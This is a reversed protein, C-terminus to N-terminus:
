GAAPEDQSALRTVPERRSGNASQAAPPRAAGHRSFLEDYFRSSEYVEIRGLLRDAASLCLWRFLCLCAGYFTFNIVVALWPHNALERWGNTENFAVIAAPSVLFVFGFGTGPQPRTLIDLPMVIFVLPAVCWVVFAGLAAVIARAQSKVRLGIYLSLWAVMPLYIGVSLASCTLYLPLSFELHYSRPPAPVAIRWKMACEFFFITFFPVLLVLMLRLVARFKQRIIERGTLPTTCLVDLTQHSREGAILSASQASVMLVAVLGVPILLLTLPEASPTNAIVLVCLAAVPVELGIFVRALYRAKGLSRKATERWAVPEDGPLPATDRVFVFGRTLWNDNLRLFIRDLSKFVNLVADRPAIFARRVIFVRALVLWVASAALVLVSHMVLTWLNFGGFFLSNSLVGPGFFPLMLPTIDIMNGGLRSVLDSLTLGTVSSAVLWCVAPGFFMALALLYTWIFAGVTTRFYASCALALTGMQIMALALMGVGACLHEPSIGGLAYAFALLPLSLMLYGLMPILRSTLKEFLITWPGLRTLFLLQLSAREKEQTIVGCTIAPMFFYVGAFQMMVLAAFMERGRGLAALPSAVGTRLIEYFFLYAAVFLLVAYATRVAYTRKRAAQELLEKALLPLGFSAPRRTM